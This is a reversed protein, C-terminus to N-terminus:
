DVAGEAALTQASHGLQLGSCPVQLPQDLDRFPEGVPQQVSQNIIGLEEVVPVEALAASPSRRTQRLVPRPLALRLLAVPPAHPPSSM